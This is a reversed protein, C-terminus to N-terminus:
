EALEEEEVQLSTSAAKRGEGERMDRGRGEGERRERGRGEARVRDRAESVFTFSTLPGESLKTLPGEIPERLESLL